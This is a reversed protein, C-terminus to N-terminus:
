QYKVAKILVVCILAHMKSCALMLRAYSALGSKPPINSLEQSHSAVLCIYFMTPTLMISHVCHM